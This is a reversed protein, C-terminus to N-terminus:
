NSALTSHLVQQTRKTILLMFSLKLEIKSSSHLM